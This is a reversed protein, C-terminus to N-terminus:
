HTASGPLSGLTLMCLCMQPLYPMTDRLLGAAAVAQAYTPMRRCVDAYAVCRYYTRCLTACYDLRRYQRRMRRCVDAYTLMRWVDTTPVAYHRAATWGSSSGACVDAYTLLDSCCAAARQLM